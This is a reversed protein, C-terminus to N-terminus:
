WLSIYSNWVPAQTSSDLWPLLPPPLSSSHARTRQCWLMPLLLSSIWCSESVRSSAKRFSRKTTQYLQLSRHSLLHCVSNESMDAVEIIIKLAPDTIVASDSSLKISSGSGLFGKWLLLGPSLLVRSIFDQMWSLSHQTFPFIDPNESRHDSVEQHVRTVEHFKWGGLCHHYVETFVYRDRIPM